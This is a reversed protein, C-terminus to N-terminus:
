ETSKKKKSKHRKPHAKADQTRLINAIVGGLIGLGIVVDVAIVAVRWPSMKYFVKAGHVAGNFKASNVVTYVTYLTNKIATRLAQIGTSTDLFTYSGPSLTLDLMHQDTGSHVMRNVAVSDNPCDYDTVIYGCFGWEHRLVNTM